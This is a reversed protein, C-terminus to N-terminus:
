FFNRKQLKDNIKESSYLDRINENFYKGASEAKSFAKYMEEPFDYYVWISGSKYVVALINTYMNWLVYKIFSSNPIFFEYDLESNFM